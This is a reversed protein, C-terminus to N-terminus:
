SWREWMLNLFLGVMLIFLGREKWLCAEAAAVVRGVVAFAEADLKNWASGGGLECGLTSVVLMIQAKAIM